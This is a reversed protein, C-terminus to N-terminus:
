APKLPGWDESLGTCQFALPHASPPCIGNVVSLLSSWKQLELGNMLSIEEIELQAVDCGDKAVFFLGESKTVM